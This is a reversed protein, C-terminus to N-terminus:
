DGTIKKKLESRLYPYKEKILFTDKVKINCYLLRNILFTNQASLFTFACTFNFGKPILFAHVILGKMLCGPVHMIFSHNSDGSDSRLYTINIYFMQKEDCRLSLGSRM